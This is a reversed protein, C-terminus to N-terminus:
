KGNIKIKEYTPCSKPTCTCASFTFALVLIGIVRLIGKM